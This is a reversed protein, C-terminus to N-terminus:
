ATREQQEQLQRQYDGYVQSAMLKYSNVNDFAKGLKEKDVSGDEKMLKSAAVQAYVDMMHNKIKGSNNRLYTNNVANSSLKRQKVYGQLIDTPEDSDKLAKYQNFSEVLDEDGKYDKNMELSLLVSKLGEIVAGKKANKLIIKKEVDSVKQFEESKEIETKSQEFANELGQSIISFYDDLIKGKYEEVADEVSQKWTEQYNQAENAVHSDVENLFADPSGLITQGLVKNYMVKQELSLDKKNLEKLGFDVANMSAIKQLNLIYNENM